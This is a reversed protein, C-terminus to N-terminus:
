RQLMLLSARVAHLDGDLSFGAGEAVLCRELENGSAVM